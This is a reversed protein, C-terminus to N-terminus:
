ELKQDINEKDNEKQELDDDESLTKKLIQKMKEGEDYHKKRKILFAKHMEESEEEEGKEDRAREREEEKKDGIQQSSSLMRHLEDPSVGTSLHKNKLTNEKTAEDLTEEVDKTGAEIKEEILDIAFPTKPETIKPYKNRERDDAQIKEEDWSIHKKHTEEAQNLHHEHLISKVPHQTVSEM